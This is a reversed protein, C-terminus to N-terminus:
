KRPESFKQFDRAVRESTCRGMLEEGGALRCFVAASSGCTGLPSEKRLICSRVTIRSFWELGIVLTDKLLFIGNGDEVVVVVVVVMLQVLRTAQM